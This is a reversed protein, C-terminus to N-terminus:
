KSGKKKTKEVPKEEGIVEFMGFADKPVESYIGYRKFHYGGYSFTKNSKYKM